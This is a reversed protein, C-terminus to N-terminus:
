KTITKIEDLMTRDPYYFPTYYKKPNKLFKITGKIDDIETKVSDNKLFYKLFDSGKSEFTNGYYSMKFRELIVDGQNNNIGFDIRIHTPIIEEPLNFTVHQSQPQAKLGGWIAKEGTFNNTNDETYYIAFNDEIPTIVDLDISFNQKVEAKAEAEKKEKGDNKCSIFSLSLVAALILNKTKM